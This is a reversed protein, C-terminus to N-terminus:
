RRSRCSPLATEELRGTDVEFRGPGIGDVSIFRTLRSQRWASRGAPRRGPSPQRTASSSAAVAALAHAGAYAFGSRPSIGIAGSRITPADLIVIPGVTLDTGDCRRDIAM